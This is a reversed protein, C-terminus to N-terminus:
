TKSRAKKSLISPRGSVEKDANQKYFQILNDYIQWVTRNCHPNIKAHLARLRKAESFVVLDTALSPSRELWKQDRELREM